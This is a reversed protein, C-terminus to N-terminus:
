VLEPYFPNTLEGAVIGIAGTRQTSLARGTDSPVYVLSAAATHVKARTNESIGPKGRLARSVTSQSVGALRAVDHSTARVETEKASDIGNLLSLLTILQRRCRRCGLM